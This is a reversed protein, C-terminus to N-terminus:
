ETVDFAQLGTTTPAPANDITVTSRDGLEKLIDQSAQRLEEATMDILSKRDLSNNESAKPAIFGARDLITKACELRIKDAKTDDVMFDYLLRTAAPAAKTLLIRRLESALAAQIHPRRLLYYSDNGAPYGANTAAVTHHYGKGLDRVFIAERESLTARLPNM